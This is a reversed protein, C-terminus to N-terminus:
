LRRRSVPTAFARRIVDGAENNTAYIIYVLDNRRWVALEDGSIRCRSRCYACTNNLKHVAGVDQQIFVSTYAGTPGDHFFLQVSGAEGPMNCEGLGLFQVGDEHAAAIAPGLDPPTHGLVSQATTLAENVTAFCLRRSRTDNCKESDNHTDFVFNILQARDTGPLTGGLDQGTVMVVGIFAIFAAAAAYRTSRRWFSPQTTLDPSIPADGFAPQSFAAINAAHTEAAMASAIRDRLAQPVSPGGIADSVAERLKQQTLIRAQAAPIAAIRRAVAPDTHSLEGDAVACLLAADSLASIDLGAAM